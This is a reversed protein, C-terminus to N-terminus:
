DASLRYQGQRRDYCYVRHSRVLDFQDQLDATDYIREPEDDLADSYNCQRIVERIVGYSQIMRRGHLVVDFCRYIGLQEAPDVAAFDFPKVCYKSVELISAPDCKGIHVLPTYDVHLITGWLMALLQQSVYYRSHFYSPKVAVLIHMHPHYTKTDFNYSVELFRLSGAWGRLADHKVLRSYAKYIRTITASLDDAAVNKVTLVVHLMEFGRSVVRDWVDTLKAMILRSRRWQCMPCLRQRCFDAGVLRWGDGEAGFTLWHGCNEIKRARAKLQSDGACLRVLADARRRWSAACALLDLIQEEDNYM